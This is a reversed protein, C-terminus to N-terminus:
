LRRTGLGTRGRPKYTSFATAALLVLLAAVAYVMFQVRPGSLDAHSLPATAAVNALYRVPQMHLLMLASAPITLLLKVLVWYHRFLGWDTGLSSVIGTILSALGLPVIVFRYSLDTAIYSAQVVQGDPSTLGVIAFALFVAVAGTWGASAVVHATLVFKRLAPTM